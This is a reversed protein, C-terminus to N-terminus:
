RYLSWPFPEPGGTSRSLNSDARGVWGSLGVKVTHYLKMELEKSARTDLNRIKNWRTSEVLMGTYSQHEPSTSALSAGRSEANNGQSVPWCHSRLLRVTGWGLRAQLEGKQQVV